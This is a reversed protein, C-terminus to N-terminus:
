EAGKETRRDPGPEGAIAPEIEPGLLHIRPGTAVRRAFGDRSQQKERWEEGSWLVPNIERHVLAEAGSLARIVDPYTLSDSVVLVDIDSDAHDEGTAVSGFVFALVVKDALPLLANRVPEAVGFTKVVMGRLESFIPADRNAQFHRQNGVRQTTVLRASALRQLERHVAGTGCAAFRVIENAYFSREPQGFLLALVRQQTRTFLVGGLSVSKSGM